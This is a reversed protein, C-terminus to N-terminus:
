EHSHEVTLQSFSVVAGEDAPGSNDQCYNGAKFYFTQNTWAPDTQFVNVSQNTGNVTMSLLGDKLTVQFSILNSLGVRGFTFETDNTSSVFEKVLAEVTGKDFRLKLLPVSGGSFSHIQGIFTRKSSPIQTVKCQGKLIHTGYGTWNVAENDPDLMERLETRPFESGPTTGGTVPCWFVMAGDPGTYFSSNTFGGVLQAASIESSTADPLTLKWHSLDFNGGPPLSPDLPVVTRFFEMPKGAKINTRFQGNTAVVDQWNPPSLSTARQLKGGTWSVVVRGANPKGFVRFHSEVAYLVENTTSIVDSFNLKGMLDSKVTMLPLGEKIVAYTKNTGLDGITYSVSQGLSATRAKWQRSSGITNTWDVPDILVSGEMARVWLSRALVTSTSGVEAATLVLRSGNTTVDTSISKEEPDFIKGNGDEFITSGYADVQVRVFPQNSVYTSAADAPSGETAVTVDAPIVNGDLRNRFGRLFRLKDGNASFSNTAFTNEDSDALNIAEKRNDHVRNGVFRNRKPRGDDNPEPPDVGKYLYFGHWDNSACENAEILNDASGLNVRVGAQVNRALINGRVICRSSGALVIGTDDNDYCQNDKVLCDNSSRHLIIGNEANAWSLNNRITLHDCRMSAIIGHSGNHHVNNGQILLYDSDDHPDFGYQVNHDVENNLWQMGYAGFTYVGFYNHHIRSNQIDGFVDVLDFLGAQDGLVKWTLGYGESDDYGLYGVNSDIIDMRSEQPTVGDAALRSRVGIFARGYTAYEIDPERTADDWSSISTSRISISGWDAGIFVFRNTDATNNSQLRLENVDGGIGTGHLVLHAGNEVILNARLHWVGPTVEKLPAQSQAARIDSM